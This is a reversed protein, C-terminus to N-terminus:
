LGPAYSTYATMVQTFHGTGSQFTPMKFNYKEVESYWMSIAQEAATDYRCPFIISHQVYTNSYLCSSLQRINMTTRTSSSIVSRGSFMAINEGANKRESQSAHKLTNARAIKNAWEEAEKALDPAWRM